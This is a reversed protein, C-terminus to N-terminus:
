AFPLEHDDAVAATQFRALRNTWLHGVQNLIVAAFVGIVTPASLGFASLVFYSSGGGFFHVYLEGPSVINVCYNARGSFM